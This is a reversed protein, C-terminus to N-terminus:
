KKIFHASGTARDIPVFTRLNSWPDYCNYGGWGLSLLVLWHKGGPVTPASIEIIVFKWPNLVDNRIKNRDFSRVRTEFKIRSLNASEWHLMGDSTYRFDTNNRLPTEWGGALRNLGYVACTTCGALKIQLSSSGLRNDSYNQFRQQFLHM